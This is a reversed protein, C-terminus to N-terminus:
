LAKLHDHSHDQISLFKSLEGVVFHYVCYLIFDFFDHFNTTIVFFSKGFRWSKISDNNKLHVTSSCRLDDHVTSFFVKIGFRWFM